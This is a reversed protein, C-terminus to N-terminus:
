RQMATGVPNGPPCNCYCLIQDRFGGWCRSTGGLSGPGAPQRNGEQPLARHRQELNAPPLTIIFMESQQDYRGLFISFIHGWKHPQGTKADGARHM